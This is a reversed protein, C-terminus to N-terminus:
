PPGCGATWRTAIPARGLVLCGVESRGDATAARAVDECAAREDLGELKWLHTRGAEHLQEIAGTVLGPRAERDFRDRDDGVAGLQEPEAPVLLELMFGRGTARCHDSVEVLKERRV